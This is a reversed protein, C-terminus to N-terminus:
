GSGRPSRRSASRGRSLYLFMCIRGLLGSIGFSEAIRGGAEIMQMRAEVLADM